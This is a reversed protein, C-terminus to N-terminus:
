VSRQMVVVVSTRAQANGSIFRTLGETLMDLRKKSSTSLVIAVLRYTIGFFQIVANIRRNRLHIGTNALV